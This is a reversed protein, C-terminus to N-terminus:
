PRGGASCWSTFAEDQPQLDCTQQAGSPQQQAEAQLRLFEETAVRRGERAEITLARYEAPYSDRLHRYLLAGAYSHPGSQEIIRALQLLDDVYRRHQWDTERIRDAIFTSRVDDYKPTDQM